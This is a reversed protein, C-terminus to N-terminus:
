RFSQLAETGPPEEARILSELEAMREWTNVAMGALVRGGKTWFVVFELSEVSGSVVVEDYADPGAVFGLYEMGLDYQDTFFYPLKDYPEEAGLMAKAAHPGTDLATQWHEVRIPRGYRSSPISAIDGAAWIDPGSTRLTGDVAIGGGLDKARLNIGAEVALGTNPTAGVAILVIDAEVRKGDETEVGTAKGDEGLIKAVQTRRRLDVGHDTHLKAFVLGMEPGLVRELPEAGLGFVTVERGLQRASAAVEMGIWGDGVIAVRESEHLASALLDSQEVTRLLHVNQLDSGPIPLPRPNSGTALLLKKYDVTSGDALSLRRAAPDLGTAPEGTRLEANRAFWDEDVTFVASRDAEGRLYDKSLPPREYPRHAEGTVIVLDDEYGEDRLTVAAKAAALGGGVIVFPAHSM